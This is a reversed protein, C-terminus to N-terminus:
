HDPPLSAPSSIAGERGKRGWKPRTLARRDLLANWEQSIEPGYGPCERRLREEPWNKQLWKIGRMGFCPNLVNYLRVSAGSLRLLVGIRPNPNSCKM